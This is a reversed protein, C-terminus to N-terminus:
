SEWRRWKRGRFLARQAQELLEAARRRETIDRTVKAFGVLEGNERIADLVVHAWFRSGDKRVRWGEAEFRGERKATEMARVPVGAAIDEPTYFRSFRSGIIETESYGKIRRAGSNWSSVRGDPSLMFIAYDSVGGVLLRFNRESELVAAHAARKESIDQMVNAFGLFQGDSDRLATMVVSAWFTTGKRCRRGL